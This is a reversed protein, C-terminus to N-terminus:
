DYGGYAQGRDVVTAAYDGRLALVIFPQGPVVWEPSPMDDVNEGARLLGTETHWFLLKGAVIAGISRQDADFAVPQAGRSGAYEVVVRRTPINWLATARETGIGCGGAPFALDDRGRVVLPVALRFGDADSCAYRRGVDPEWTQLTGGDLAVHWVTDPTDSLAASRVLLRAGDPSFAIHDAAVGNWERRPSAGKNLAYYFLRADAVGSHDVFGETTYADAALREGSSDFVLSRVVRSFSDGVLPADFGSLIVTKNAITDFVSVETDGRAIAVRRGDRAFAGAVPSGYTADAHRFPSRWRKITGDDSASWLTAGDKVGSLATIAGDHGLLEAKITGGPGVRRITAGCGEFLTGDPLALLPGAGRPCSVRGFPKGSAINWAKITGDGGASILTQGSFALSVVRGPYALIGAMSAATGPEREALTGRAAGTPADYLRLGGGDNGVAVLAGDASASISITRSGHPVSWALKGTRADRAEVRSSTGGAYVTNADSSFAM